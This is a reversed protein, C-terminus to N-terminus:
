KFRCWKVLELIAFVEFVVEHKRHSESLCITAKLPKMGDLGGAARGTEFGNLKLLSTLLLLFVLLLHARHAM